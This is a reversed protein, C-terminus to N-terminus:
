SLKVIQGSTSKSKSHIILEKRLMVSVKTSLAAAALELRPISIFKTLTVRSETIVLLCHFM